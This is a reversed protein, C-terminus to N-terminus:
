KRKKFGSPCKPNIGTVIKSTKGKVCIISAKKQVKVVISPKDISTNKSSTMKIQVYPDSFTYGSVNIYVWDKVVKVTSVGVIPDGNAYFIQASASQIDAPNFKWLCKTLEPSLVLDMNGRNLNGDQDLHTSAMQYGLSNNSSDWEPARKSYLLANSSVFGSFTSIQCDSFRNSSNLFWSKARGVQRIRPEWISFNAFPRVSDNNLGPYFSNTEFWKADFSPPVIAKEADSLDTYKLIESQALPSDEPSGSITLVDNSIDILPSKIRGNFFTSIMKSTVGLKISIRFEVDDPFVVFDSYALVSDIPGYAKRSAPSFIIPSISVNFNIPNTIDALSFNDMSVSVLYQSGGKHPTSPLNWISSTRGTPIGKSADEEINGVLHPQTGNAYNIAIVGPSNPTESFGVTGKTWDSDSKQKSELSIICNKFDGLECTPFVSIFKAHDRNPLVSYNAGIYASQGALLSLYGKQLQGINWNTESAAKAGHTFGSSLFLLVFLLVWRIKPTKVSGYYRHTEKISVETLLIRSPGVIQSTM